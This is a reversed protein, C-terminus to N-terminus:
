QGVADILSHLEAGVTSRVVHSHKKCICASTCLCGRVARGELEMAKFASDSVVALRVKDNLKVYRIGLRALNHKIWALLSNLKRVDGYTPAKGCRQLYSIYVFVPLM